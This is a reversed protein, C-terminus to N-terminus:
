KVKWYGSKERSEKRLGSTQTEISKEVLLMEHM